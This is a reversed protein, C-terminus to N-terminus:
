TPFGARPNLDRRERWKLFAYRTRYHLPKDRRGTVSSIALEIRTLVAMRLHLEITSRSRALTSVPTRNGESAGDYLLLEALLKKREKMGWEDQKM